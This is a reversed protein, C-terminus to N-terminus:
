VSVCGCVSVGVCVWVCVCMWVCGCVVRESWAVPQLAPVKSGYGFCESSGVAIRLHALLSAWSVHFSTHELRGGTGLGCGGGRNHLLVNDPSHTDTMDMKVLMITQIPRVIGSIWSHDPVKGM